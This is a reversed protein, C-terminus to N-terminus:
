MKSLYARRIPTEIAQEVSWGLYLRSFINARPTGAIESAQQVTLKRGKYDLLRTTRKNYTQEENKAWKCNAPEYNGNNDRREISFSPDPRQGMDSIFNEFRKWRECVKIGRGGYQPYRDVKPNECRRRMACWVGYEPTRRMGHTRRIDGTAARKSTLESRLCGCSQSKGTKM